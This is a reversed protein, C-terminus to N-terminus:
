VEELSRIDEEDARGEIFRRVREDECQRIEDATGDFIFRGDHLMIIRDAIKFASPMDHTVVVSTVGLRKKLKLILENITDARVPDLGTTPEDYLIIDPDLAIARALAVRKKQGGSIQAPMKLGIGALGVIKLKEAVIRDIEPKPKRTREVLPFAVNDHVSLSDFLAGLQFLFGFRGRMDALEDESMTDVRHGAFRIEGADPRLLGVIHKLLVSKGMGSEGIVVNTDGRRLTLDVNDLVVLEGFRKHVGTLEIIPSIESSPKTPMTVSSSM